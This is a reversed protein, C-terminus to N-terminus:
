IPIPPAGSDHKDARCVQKVRFKVLIEGTAPDIREAEVVDIQVAYGRLVQCLSEATMQQESISEDQGLVKIRYVNM